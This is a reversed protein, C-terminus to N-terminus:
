TACAPLKLELHLFGEACPRDPYCVSIDQVVWGANELERLVADATKADLTCGVQRYIDMETVGSALRQNIEVLIWDINKTNMKFNDPTIIKVAM